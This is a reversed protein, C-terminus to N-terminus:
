LLKLGASVVSGSVRRAWVTRAQWGMMLEEINVDLLTDKEITTGKLLIGAGDYTLDTTRATFITGSVSLKMVFEMKARRSRRRETFFVGCHPCRARETGIQVYFAKSCEPCIRIM